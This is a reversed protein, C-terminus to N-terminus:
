AHKRAWDSYRKWVNHIGSLADFSAGRVRLYSRLEQKSTFREPINPDEKMLVILDGPPDYSPKAQDLWGKTLNTM